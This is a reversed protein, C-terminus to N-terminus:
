SLGEPKRIALLALLALLSITVSLGIAVRAGASELILAFLFPAAAQTLRQPAALKGQLLGYGRPGFLALPLTGWAITIMGNGAGHLLAFATAGAPGAALLLCAGGLPHLTTALRAALLPSLRGRRSALFEGLRAAVQAPGVLAAAGIAAVLPLGVIALLGPLHAAMASTVFATAAGFVILALINRRDGRSHEVAAGETTVPPAAGALDKSSPLFRYYLPLALFLNIGAWAFCTLRWDGHALLWATLPWGITSAFGGLLTVGTIPTRATLGHERVLATFAADYLGLAMGVGIVAWAVFLSVPGVALGLLILGGALTVSSLCLIGQGGQRDIHRGILPGCAAMIVLAVSYAAFVLAPRLGLEAALPRALLAPLYTSSAWAITQAVGLAVVQPWRAAM